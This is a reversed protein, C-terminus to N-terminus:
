GGSRMSRRHGGRGENGAPMTCGEHRPSVPLALILEDEVLQAVSMDRTALVRDVEDDALAMEQSSQSLELEADVAVPWPLLELCRQCVLELMGSARIRLCPRGQDNTGGRLVYGIREARCQMEALRPLREQRLTGQIESGGRAFQLGDIVEAQSM